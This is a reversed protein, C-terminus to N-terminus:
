VPRRGSLDGTKNMERNNKRREGSGDTKHQLEKQERVLARTFAGIEWMFHEPSLEGREIALLKKEWDATMAASKLQEPLVSVLFM